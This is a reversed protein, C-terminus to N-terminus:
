ALCANQVRWGETNLLIYFYFQSFFLLPDNKLPLKPSADTSQPKQCLCWWLCHYTCSASGMGSMQIGVQLILVHLWKSQLETSSKRLSNKWITQAVRLALISLFGPHEQCRGQALVQKRLSLCSTLPIIGSSLWLSLPFFWCPPHSSLVARHLDGLDDIPTGFELSVNKIKHVNLACPFVARTHSISLQVTWQMFDELQNPEADVKFLCSVVDERASFGIWTARLKDWGYRYTGQRRVQAPTYPLLGTTYIHYCNNM